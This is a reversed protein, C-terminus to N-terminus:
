LEMIMKLYLNAVSAWDYKQATGKNRKQRLAKDIGETISDLDDQVYIANDGLLERRIPDDFCVIPLGSALAEVFVIGFAESKTQLFVFVDAQRYIEALKDHTVSVRNYRPGLKQQGLKDLQKAQTGDGVYLYQYEKHELAEIVKDINKSKESAAVTLIVPPKGTKKNRAYFVNTDVGNPIVKYKQNPMFNKAWKMQSQSLCVFVDPMILLNFRDDWGPGSQGSLVLKFKYIKSLVKYIILHWGNNYPMVVDPRILHLHKIAKLYFLTEAIKRKSFFFRELFTFGPKIQPMEIRITHSDNSGGGVIKWVFSYPKLHSALENVVTEVGRNSLGSYASILIIKKKYDM